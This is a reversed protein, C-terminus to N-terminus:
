PRGRSVGRTRHVCGYFPLLFDSIITKYHYFNSPQVNGEIHAIYGACLEKMTVDEGGCPMIYSAPNNQIEICFRHYANKAEPTGSKGMIHM